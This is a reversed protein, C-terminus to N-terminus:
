DWRDDRVQVLGNCVRVPFTAVDEYAPPSLVAGTRICFRAGHRPCAIQDGEIPGGTLTAGDHTCIDEIAYFTGDINFVAILADDVATVRYDGPSLEEAPVVDIWDSVTIREM